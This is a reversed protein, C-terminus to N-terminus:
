PLGVHGVVDFGLIELFRDVLDHVIPDLLHDREELLEAWDEVFEVLEARELVGARIVLLPDVVQLLLPRLDLFLEVLHRRFKADVEHQDLHRGLCVLLFEDFERPPELLDDLFLANRKALV